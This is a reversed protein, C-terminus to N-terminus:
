KVKLVKLKILTEKLLRKLGIRTLFAIALSRILPLKQKGFYEHSSVYDYGLFRFFKFWGQGYHPFDIFKLKRIKIKKPHYRLIYNFYLDQESFGAETERNINNMIEEWFERGKRKTVIKFIDNMYKRQYLMHHTTGSFFPNQKGFGLIKKLIEYYPQHYGTEVNYLPRGNEFFSTKRIFITDADIILLNDLVNKRLVKFFYLKLFQQFYWGARGAPAYTEFDKKNFPFVREDIFSVEEDKPFFNKKSLLFIKRYGIINKKAHGLSQKLIEKDKEHCLFLIDFEDGKM